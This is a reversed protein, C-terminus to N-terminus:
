PIFAFENSNMIARCVLPLGHREALDICAEREKEGPKRGLLLEFCRQVAARSDEASERSAREAILRAQEIVFDSNLLNLAQLPTTSVPRKARVQGCDPFDFATFMRDDVRRMREQYIMRRWTGPGHNDVVEWQAYRKKVNHIRYSRGGLSRDLSGSAQLISDRIAEATLRRPPFRWLLASDADVALGDERPLSSQRFAQSTVMLRILHKMSWPAILAQGEGANMSGARDAHISPEMFESALWDLLEPHTPPAGAAGFDSTTAVIGKGFVHHWFRNAAVRATLPHTGSILWQAFATRRQKGSAQSTLNLDGDLEGIGRPAVEERPNEPSGRSFVYTTAPSIFRGVFSPQPGEEAVREILERLEELAVTRSEHEKDLQQLPAPAAILKWVGDQDQIEVRYPSLKARNMGELYDTELADERNASLRLRNIEYSTSFTFEVWPKEKGGAPSRGAWAETGYQGDNIKHLESRAVRMEEPSYTEAGETALALNKEPDETGFIELEDVRASNWLFSIRVSRTNVPPFHLERYGGWDEEWPGTERVAARRRDIQETLERGRIQRPHDDALEPFRSGFEIDQFVAAMSYYDQISIPDFKHHHCRACGITVGLASAGITQLIEDMRDARAQRRAAPEQGVTAVPVHPGSVLYGTAEGVGVTDGAIQEFLFRDYPTDRNFSRVVYDRYIWANKRYLNSESGNSEAWRIVDLWHQAWREGFHPSALLRDVLQEYAVDPTEAYAREFARTEEPTPALGTLVISARRILARPAAPPSFTLQERSLRELLFVDIPNRVTDGPSSEPIGRVVGSNEPGDSRAGPTPVDPRVIPQFSWHNSRADVVDDMQGPWLAGEEIWRTLIKIQSAPLQEEDPPMEMGAERHNVVDLLYSQAPKFPVITPQGYDGGRLMAARRDLRLGSEQEDEGHCHWCHEDFIPAVDRQFDVPESASVLRAFVACCLAGAIWGLNWISGKV